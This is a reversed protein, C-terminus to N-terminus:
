APGQDRGGRHRAGESGASATSLLHVGHLAPRGQQRGSCRAPSCRTRTKNYRTSLMEDFVVCFYILLVYYFTHYILVIIVSSCICHALSLHFISFSSCTSCGFRKCILVLVVIAQHRISGLLGTIWNKLKNM